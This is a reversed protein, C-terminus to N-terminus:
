DDDGGIDSGGGNVGDNDDGDDGGIGVGNDGGNGQLVM